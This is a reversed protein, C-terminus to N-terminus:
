WAIGGLRTGKNAGNKSDFIGIKKKLFRNQFDGATGNYASGFVGIHWSGRGHDVYRDCRIFCLLEFTHSTLLWHHIFGHMGPTGPVVISSAMFDKRPGKFSDYWHESWIARWRPPKVPEAWQGDAHQGELMGVKEHGAAEDGSRGHLLPKMQFWCHPKM